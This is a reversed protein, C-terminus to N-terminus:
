VGNKGGKAIQGIQTGLTVVISLVLLGYFSVGRSLLMASFAYGKGIFSQFLTVFFSENVGVGGPFPLIDICVSVFSQLIVIDIMSVGPIHLSSIVFWTVWFYALRQVLTIVLVILATGIHTRM